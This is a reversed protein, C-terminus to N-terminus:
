GASAPPSARPADRRERSAWEDGLLRAIARRRHAFIRRLDPRVVLAHVPRSLPDMPLAYDVRDRVMTGSGAPEFTHRHVWM